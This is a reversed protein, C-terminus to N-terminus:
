QTPSRFSSDCANCIYGWMLNDKYLVVDDEECGDCYVKHLRVSGGVSLPVTSWHILSNPGRERVESAFALGETM